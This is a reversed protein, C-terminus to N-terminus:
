EGADDDDRPQNRQKLYAILINLSSDAAEGADLVRDKVDDANEAVADLTALARKAMTRAALRHFGTSGADQKHLADLIVSCQLAFVTARQAFQFEPTTM